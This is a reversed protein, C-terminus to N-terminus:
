RAEIETFSPFTSPEDTTSVDFATARRREGRRRRGNRGSAMWDVFWRGGSPRDGHIPRDVHSRQYSRTPTHFILLCSTFLEPLQRFVLQNVPDNLEFLIV